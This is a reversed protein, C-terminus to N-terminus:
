DRGPRQDILEDLVYTRRQVAVAVLVGDHVRECPYALSSGACAPLPGCVGPAVGQGIDDGVGDLPRDARCVRPITASRIERTTSWMREDNSLPRRASRSRGALTARALASNTSRQANRMASGTAPAAAISVSNGYRAVAPPACKRTCPLTRVRGDSLASVDNPLQTNGCTSPSGTPTWM